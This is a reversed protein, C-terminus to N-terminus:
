LNLYKTYVLIVVQLFFTDKSTRWNKVTDAKNRTTNPEVINSWRSKNASNEALLRDQNVNDAKIEALLEDANVINAKNKAPDVTNAQIEAPLKDQNVTNIVEINKPKEENPTNDTTNVQAVNRPEQVTKTQGNPKPFNIKIAPDIKGNSYPKTTSSERNYNAYNNRNGYNNNQNYRSYQNSQNRGNYQPTTDHYTNTGYNYYGYQQYNSNPQDKSM